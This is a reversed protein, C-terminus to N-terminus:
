RAPPATTRGVVLSGSVAQYHDPPREGDLLRVVADVAQSGILEIPQRWHTLGIVPSALEGIGDYGTVSLDRPVAVNRLQLQEMLAMPGLVSEDGGPRERWM